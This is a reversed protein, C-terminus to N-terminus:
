TRVSPIKHIEHHQVMCTISQELLQSNIAYFLHERENAIFM